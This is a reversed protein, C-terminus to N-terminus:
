LQANDTEEELFIQGRILSNQKKNFLVYNFYSGDQLTVTSGNKIKKEKGILDGNQDKWYHYVIKKVKWGKKLKMSIKGKEGVRKYSAFTDKRFQGTLDKGELKVKKMPSKYKKVTLKCKYKKVSNKKKVKITLSTKGPKKVRVISYLKKGNKVTKLDKDNTLVKKNSSRVTINKANIGKKGMNILVYDGPDTLYLTAKKGYNIQQLNEVGDAKAHQPVAIMSVMVAVAMLPAMVRKVMTKKM